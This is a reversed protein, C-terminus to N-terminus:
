LCPKLEEAIRQRVGDTNSLVDDNWFRLVQFGEDELFRSRKADREVARAHQGGDVEIVLKASHCAFDAFYPGLPVQKRWHCDPFTARLARWLVREAKTMRRRLGRARQVADAALKLRKLGEGKHPPNPPPANEDASAPSFAVSLNMEA